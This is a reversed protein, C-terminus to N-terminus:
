LRRAGLREGEGKGTSLREGGHEVGEGSAKALGSVAERPQRLERVRVDLRGQALDPEAQELGVDLDADRLREEAAHLLLGDALREAAGSSAFFCPRSTM